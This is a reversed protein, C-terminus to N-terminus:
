STKAFFFGWGMKANKVASVISEYREKLELYIKDARSIYREMKQALKEYTLIMDADRREAKIFLLGNKKLVAKYESFSLGDSWNVLKYILNKDTKTMGSTSSESLFDSVAFLGGPALLRYVNEFFSKKNAILFIADQSIIHTFQKKDKFVKELDSGSAKVFRAKLKSLGKQSQELNIKQLYGRADKIQEGSIDVGIGRCGFQHCIEALTRGTGCGVDLILSKKNIPAFSLIKKILYDTAQQYAKNLSDTKNEFLGVHLTHRTEDWTEDYYKKLYNFKDRTTKEHKSIM